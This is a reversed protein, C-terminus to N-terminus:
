DLYVTATKDSSLPKISSSINVVEWPSPQTGTTTTINNNNYNTPSLVINEKKGEKYGEEYIENVIEKFEAETFSVKGNEDLRYFKVM